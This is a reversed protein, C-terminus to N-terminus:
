MDILVMVVNGPVLRLGIHLIHLRIEKPVIGLGFMGSRGFILCSRGRESLPIPAESGDNYPVIICAARIKSAYMIYLM